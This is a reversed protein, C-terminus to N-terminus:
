TLQLLVWSSQFQTTSHISHSRRISHTSRTSHASHAHISQCCVESMSAVLEGLSSQQAARSSEESHASLDVSQRPSPATVKSKAQGDPKSAPDVVAAGAAADCMMVLARAAM